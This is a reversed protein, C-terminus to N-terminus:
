DTKAIYFNVLQNFFTDFEEKVENNTNGDGIIELEQSLEKVEKITYRSQLAIKCNKAFKQGFTNIKTQIPHPFKRNYFNSYAM